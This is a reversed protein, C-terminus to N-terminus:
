GIILKWNELKKWIELIGYKFVTELNGFKEWSKVTKGFKGWIEIKKKEFKWLRELNEFKEWIELKPITELNENKEM